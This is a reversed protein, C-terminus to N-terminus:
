ISIREVLDDLFSKSMLSVIRKGRRLWFRILERNDQMWLHCPGDPGDEPFGDFGVLAVSQHRHCAVSIAMGGGSGGHPFDGFPTMGEEWCRPTAVVETRDMPLDPEHVADGYCYVDLKLHAPITSCGYRFGSPIRGKVLEWFSPGTGLAIADIELQRRHM